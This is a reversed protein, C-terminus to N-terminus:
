ATVESRDPALMREVQRPSYLLQHALAPLASFTFDRLGVPRLGDIVRVNQIAIQQGHRRDPTRFGVSHGAIDSRSSFNFEAFIIPPNKGSERTDHLVQANIMAAAVAMYGNERNGPGTSWETSEYLDVPGEPGNLTLLEAEAASVLEDDVVVGSFYMSRESATMSQQGDILGAFNRVSKADWDFPRWLYSLRDVMEPRIVRTLEGQNDRFYEVREVPSRSPERYNEEGTASIMEDVPTLPQRNARNVALSVLFGANNYEGLPLAVEVYERLRGSAIRRFEQDTAVTRLVVRSVEEARTFADVVLADMREETSGDDIYDLNNCYLRDYSRVETGIGGTNQIIEGDSM